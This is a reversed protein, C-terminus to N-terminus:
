RWAARCTVSIAYASEQKHIHISISGDDNASYSDAPIHHEIQDITKLFLVSQAEDLFTAYHAISWYGPHYGGVSDKPGAPDIVVLERIGPPREAEVESRAEEREFRSVFLTYIYVDGNDDKLLVSWEGNAKKTALPHAIRGDLSLVDAMTQLLERHAIPQQGIFNNATLIEKGEKFFVSYAM